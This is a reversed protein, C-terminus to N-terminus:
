LEQLFVLGYGNRRNGVFIVSYRYGVPFLVNDARAVLARSSSDRIRVGLRYERPILEFPTATGRQLGQFLLREAVQGEVITDSFVDIAALDSTNVFRWQAGWATGWRRPSTFRFLQVRGEAEALVLLQLSDMAAGAIPWQHGLASLVAGQPPLVTTVVTRYLVSVGSLVPAASLAVDQGPLGQLLQVPIGNPLPVIAQEEDTDDVWALKVGTGNSTAPLLCLFGARGSTVRIVAAALLTRPLASSWVLLPLSGAPVVAGERAEGLVVGSALLQGGLLQGEGRAGTAIEVAGNGAAAHFIRLRVAGTPREDTMVLQGLLREASDTLVLTYRRFPELSASLMLQVGSSTRVLFSDPQVDGCVPMDRYPGVRFPAVEPEVVSGQPNRVVTVPQSALNLVRLAVTAQTIRDPEWLRHATLRTDEAIGVSPSAPEGWVFFSYAAGARPSLRWTGVVREGTGLAATVSLALERSATLTLSGTESLWQASKAVSPANPCGIRLTYEQAAPVMNILRVTSGGELSGLPQLFLAATDKGDATPGIVVLHLMQRLLRLPFRTTTSEDRWIRLTLSDRSAFLAASREGPLLVVSTDGLEVRRPQGDSVLSLFAVLLSDATRPPDVLLPNESPCGTLGLLGAVM